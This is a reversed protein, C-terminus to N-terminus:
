RVKEAQVIKAIIADVKAWRKQIEKDMATKVTDMADDPVGQLIAHIQRHNQDCLSMKKFACSHCMETCNKARRKHM